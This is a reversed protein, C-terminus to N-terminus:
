PLNRDGLEVLSKQLAWYGHEPAEEELDLLRKARGMWGNAVSMQLNGRQDHAIWTAVYAARLTNGEQLYGRYARELYSIVDELHGAWMAAEALLLVDEPGLEMSEDAAHLLEYGELWEHRQLAARAADLPDQVVQSVFPGRGHQFDAPARHGFRLNEDDVVVLIDAPEETMPELRVPVLRHERAFVVVEDRRDAGAEALLRGLILPM